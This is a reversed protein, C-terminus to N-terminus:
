KNKKSHWRTAIKTEVVDVLSINASM